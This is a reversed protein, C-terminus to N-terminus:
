GSHWLAGSSNLEIDNASVTMIGTLKTHRPTKMGLDQLKAFHSLRTINSTPLSLCKAAFCHWANSVNKLAVKLNLLFNQRGVRKAENEKNRTQLPIRSIQYNIFMNSHFDIIRLTSMYATKAIYTQRDGNEFHAPTQEFYVSMPSAIQCDSSM